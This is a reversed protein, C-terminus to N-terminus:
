WDPLDYDRLRVPVRRERRPRNIAEAREAQPSQRRVEDDMKNEEEVEAGTLYEEESDTSKWGILGVESQGEECDSLLGGKGELRPDRSVFKKMRDHHVTYRKRGHYRRVLYVVESVKQVVVFPGEWRTALTRSCGKKRTMKKLWVLDGVEYNHFVVRKRNYQERRKESAKQTAETVNQYMRTVEEKELSNRPCRMVRDATVDVMGRPTCKFMVRFPIDQITEHVVSNLALQVESLHKDWGKQDEDTIKTLMDGLSRNCREVGGNGQPHYPTSLSHDIDYRKCFAQFEHSIFCPGHDSHASTPIGYRGVWEGFRLCVEAASQSCLPMLEVFKSFSDQIVLVYRYGRATQPLPGKIDMEVRDLPREAQVRQLLPARPKPNSPARAACTVCSAAYKQADSNISKWWFRRCIVSIMKKAGVHGSVPEDHAVRLIEPVMKAPVVMQTIGDEAIRCLLGDRICLPEKLLEQLQESLEEEPMGEQIITMVVELVEDQAQKERFMRSSLSNISLCGVTQLNETERLDQPESVFGLRSLADAMTNQAGPVYEFRFHYEQLESIWRGRRGWPDKMSPLFILPRHDTRLTFYAGLLHHRFHRVALIIALFERDFVSYRRQASSMTQSYYAVPHMEGDDGEQALEAGVAVASADTSLCFPKNVQPHILVPAEVLRRKLEDFAGQCELSWCFSVREEAVDILPRAITAYNPIFRRYWGTAGLFSKLARPSTPVTWNRIADTKTMAPAIGQSSVQHGCFFVSPMAFQCKDARLRLGFHLLTEFLSKLRQLHEEFTNSALCIDDMYLALQIPTLSRLATNMMRCFTAPAGKLGFPM